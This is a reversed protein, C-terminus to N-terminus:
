IFDDNLIDDLKKDLDDLSIKEQKVKSKRKIEKKEEPKDKKEVKPEPKPKEKVEPKKEEVKKVPKEVKKKPEPKEEEVPKKEVKKEPKVEKKDEVEKVVPKEVKPRKEKKEVPKEAMGEEQLLKAERTPKVATIDEEGIIMFRIINKRLRAAKQIEPIRKPDLAFWTNIYIGVKEKGVSYALRRKEVWFSGSETESRKGTELVTGEAGEVWSRIKDAIRPLEENRSSVLCNLEYMRRDKIVEKYKEKYEEIV